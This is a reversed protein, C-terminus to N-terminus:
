RSFYLEMWQEVDFRWMQLSERRFVSEFLPKAEGTRLVRFAWRVAHAADGPPDHADGSVMARAARLWHGRALPDEIVDYEVEVAYDPSEGARVCRFRTRSLGACAAEQVEAEEPTNPSIVHADTLVLRAQVAVLYSKQPQARTIRRFPSDELSVCGFLVLLVLLCVVRRNM